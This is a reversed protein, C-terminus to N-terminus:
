SGLSLTAPEFGTERELGQDHRGLSKKQAMFTRGNPHRTKWSIPVSKALLPTRSSGALRVKCVVRRSVMWVTIAGAALLSYILCVM